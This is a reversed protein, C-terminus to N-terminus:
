LGLVSVTEAKRATLEREVYLSTMFLSKLTKSKQFLSVLKFHIFPIILLLKM